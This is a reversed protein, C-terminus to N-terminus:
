QGSLSSDIGNVLVRIREREWQTCAQRFPLRLGDRALRSETEMSDQFLFKVESHQM